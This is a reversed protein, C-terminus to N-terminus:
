MRDVHFIKQTITDLVDVCEGTIKITVVSSKLCFFCYLFNGLFAYAIERQLVM